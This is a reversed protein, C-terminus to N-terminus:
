DTFSKNLPYGVWASAVDGGGDNIHQWTYTRARHLATHRDYDPILGLLFYM